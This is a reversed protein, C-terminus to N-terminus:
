RSSGPEVFSAAKGAAGALGELGIELVAPPDSRVVQATASILVDWPVGQDALQGLVARGPANLLMSGIAQAGTM